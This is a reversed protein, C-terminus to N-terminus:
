WAYHVGAMGTLRQFDNGGFAWAVNGWTQWRHAFRYQVGAKVEGTSKAVGDLPVNVGDMAIANKRNTYWWNAEFSAQIIKGSDKAFDRYLRAGLRTVLGGSSDAAVQTGNVETHTGASYDIYILQGQPQIVWDNGFPKAAYGTELSSTWSHSSYREGPLLDGQVQNDFNGYQIWGDVYGGLRSKENAFWTAYTGVAYGNVTGYADYPNGAASANTRMNGYATMVGLHLRDGSQIASWQAVDGGAQLVEGQTNVELQGDAGQSRVSTGAIRAWGAALRANGDPKDDDPIQPDGLRDYLTTLFMTQAAYQNGLYVGAEPRLLKPPVPTPNPTPTPTPTPTPPQESRLYWQGNDPDSVGGQFLRYEYPGAVVRGDLTFAGSASRSPDVVDVVQIGDAQTVAGDGAVRQVTIRTAGGVGVATADVVLTDTQSSAGGENLVTDIRLQGGDSTYTGGTVIMRDGAVGNAMTITGRNDLNGIVTFIADPGNSLAPLANGVGMLGDNIVTGTVTGYGGFAAGASVTTQGGGALEAGTHSADGIALTGATVATKGSYTQVGNLIVTGSGSQTVSGTGSITGGYILSDSRDFVLAGNNTMDGAVSGSTGGNGVQLTAGAGITTGGGTGNNALAGALILTGSQVNTAAATTGTTSVPGSLTWNSGSLTLSNFGTFSSGTSGTGQLVLTNGTGSTVVANGNLVSATGLTLSNNSGSITVATGGTGTITGTNTLAMGSSQLQVGVLGSIFGSNVLTGTSTGRILVAPANTGTITGANSVTLPGNDNLLGPGNSATITGTQSQTVSGGSGLRIGGAVASINGDNSVNAVGTALIGYQSAGSISAGAHNNVTGGKLLYVGEVSNSADATSVISGFNDLRAGGSTASNLQVVGFGGGGSTSRILGSNTLQWNQTNDGVIASGSAVNIVAGAPAQFTSSGPSLVQLQVTATSNPITVQAHAPPTLM